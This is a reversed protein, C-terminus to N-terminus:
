LFVCARVCARVRVCACARVTPDHLNWASVFAFPKFASALSLKMSDMRDLIVQPTHAHTHTHAHSHKHTNARAALGVAVFLNLLLM